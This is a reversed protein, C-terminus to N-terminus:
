IPRATPDHPSESRRLGLKSIRSSIAGTQRGLHEAIKRNTWGEQHLGILETDEEDDWPKYARQHTQRVTEVYSTHTGGSEMAALAEGAAAFIDNYTVGPLRDVIQAYGHGQSILRLISAAQKANRPEM